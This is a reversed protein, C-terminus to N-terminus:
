MMIPTPNTINWVPFLKNEQRVDAPNEFYREVLGSFVPNRYFSQADILRERRWGALDNAKLEAIASVQKGAQRHFEQEFNRYSLHGGIAIGLVLLLFSSAYVALASKEKKDYHSM